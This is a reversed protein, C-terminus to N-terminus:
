HARRPFVMVRIACGLEKQPGSVHRGSDLGPVPDDVRGKTPLTAHVCSTTYQMLLSSSEASFKLM